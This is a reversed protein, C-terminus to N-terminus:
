VCLPKDLVLFLDKKWLNFLSACFTMNSCYFTEKSDSAAQKYKKRNERDAWAPVGGMARQFQEELRAKLKKKTLIKEADSKM